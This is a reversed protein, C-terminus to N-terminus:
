ARKARRHVRMLEGANPGRALVAGDLSRRVEVSALVIDPPPAFTFAHHGSGIGARWLDARYANALVQGIMRGEAFIDLCVPAEPHEVTQVWGAVRRASVEDVYGRLKGIRPGDAVRLLGARLAIRQRATEVEYGEQLRPACYQARAAPAEDLYLAEYERANHFLLRNDDDLYSESLAGEAIIVDHSDLEIHFYEVKEVREAQVISIGNVLDRAEILVGDLYMAHHPSVWLDRRPVDDDLAGAKVCIPLIDKRGLVFRGRYSRRGIWKIPRAAGSATMVKDGIELTEVRKEGRATKILTGPCYCPTVDITATESPSTQAGGSGTNGNDDLSFTLTVTAPTNTNDIYSLDSTGGSGLLLNLDFISGSLILDSSDNSFELVTVGSNGVTAHLTGESVTVTLTEQGNGGDPDAVSIGTNKLDLSQQEPTSYIVSGLTVSPAQNSPLENTTLNYSNAGYTSGLTYTQGFNNGGTGAVVKDELNPLDFTNVSGGYTYEIAFFLSQNANVALQQGAAVVWGTPITSARGAYAMIEGVYPTNAGLAGSTPFFASGPANVDIIYYLALTPQQNDISQDGETPLNQITLTTTDSGSATGLPDTPSPNGNANDAGIVARGELNPLAFTGQSANGGYTNGIVAYLAENQVIQLIQGAALVYGTPAFDGLFPVVMGPADVGTGNGDLNMLYCVGLSPQDNSYPQDAGGVITPMNTESLTVSNQGYTQGLIVGEGRPGDAGPSEGTGVMLTGALNPLGFTQIGNGGYATGLLSFLAAQQSISLTQGQALQEEDAISSADGAFIRITGIPLGAVPNGDRSPFDGSEVVEENLVITQEDTNIPSTM